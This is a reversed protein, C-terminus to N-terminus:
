YLLDLQLVKLPLNENKTINIIQKAGEGGEINRM